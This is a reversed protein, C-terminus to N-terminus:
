ASTNKVLRDIQRNPSDVSKKLDAIDDARVLNLRDPIGKIAEAVADEARAVGPVKRVVRHGATVSDTIVHMAKGGAKVVLNKATGGVKVAADAGGRVTRTACTKAKEAVPALRSAGAGIPSLVRESIFEGSAGL